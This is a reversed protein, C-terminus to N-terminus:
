LKFRIKEIRKDVLVVGIWAIIVSLVSVEIVFLLGGKPLGLYELIWIALFHSLFVGYSLNGLTRNFPLRVKSKVAVYVIPLGVIIGLLTERTYAGYLHKILVFYSFWIVCFLYTAIVAAIEYKRARNTAIKQILSGLMFIFLVGVILRYAFYDSHIINLNAISYICLSFFFFFTGIKPFRLLFPLLMYVQLETGLSWAPPILWWPPHTSTLIILDKEIYMYYNLPVILLNNILNLAKFEPNGFSTLLLFLITLSSVFLYLPFIRLVRDIYFTLVTKGKNWFIDYLLHTVVHGALIYFIVVAFVGPNLGGIRFGIHSLLVLYALLFRLYGM